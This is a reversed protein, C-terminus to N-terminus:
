SAPTHRRELESSLEERARRLRSKVTGLPIGLVEAIQKIPMEEVQFLVFVHRLEDDLSRLQADLFSLVEDRSVVEDPRTKGTSQDAIAEDGVEARARYSRRQHAAERLAVAFLFAGEAGPRIDALRPPATLIGRQAADDVDASRVGFRRLARGVTDFHNSVMQRLREHDFTRAQQRFENRM